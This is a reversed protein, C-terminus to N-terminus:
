VGCPAIKSSKKQEERHLSRDSLRVTVGITFFEILYPVVDIEHYPVVGLEQHCYKEMKM